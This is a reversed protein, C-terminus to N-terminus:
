FSKTGKVLRKKCAKKQTKSLLKKIKKMLNKDDSNKEYCNKEDSPEEDSSKKILIKKKLIKKM